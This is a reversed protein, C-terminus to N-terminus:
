NEAKLGSMIIGIKNENHNSQKLYKIVQQLSTDRSRRYVSWIAAELSNLLNM